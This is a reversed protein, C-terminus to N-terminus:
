LLTKWVRIPANEKDKDRKAIYMAEDARLVLESLEAEKAPMSAVGISVGVQASTGLFRFPHEFVKAVREAVQLAGKADTAPLLFVFEDGGWRALIDEQRTLPQLRRAIDRLVADGASHGYTDNIPKFHNLDMYLLSMWWNNRRALSLLELIQGILYRRNYLDTLEDHTALRTIEDKLNRTQTVDNVTVLLYSDILRANLELVRAKGLVSQEASFYADFTLPEGTELVTKYREFVSRVTMSSFEKLLLKGRLNDHNVLESAVSNAYVFKLDVLEGVEDWVPSFLNIGLPLQNLVDHLLAKTVM